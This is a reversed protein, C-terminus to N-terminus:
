KSFKKDHDQVGYSVRRFGLDYLTHLHEKTTNNPHGEFSFEYQSHIKADKSLAGLLRQLNAPSFFTPTGGGLHLERIVPVDNMLANYLNWEKIIAQMYEEEVSHNTTIKKNCGCYTCLSECFPLHIYLSIGEVNNSSEFQQAFVKKWQSVDISNKWFPM